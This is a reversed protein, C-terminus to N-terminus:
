SFFSSFKNKCQKLHSARLTHINTGAAIAQLFASHIQFEFYLILLLAYAVHAANKLYSLWGNLVHIFQGMRKRLIGFLERIFISYKIRFLHREESSFFNIKSSLVFINESLFLKKNQCFTHPSNSISYERIMGINADIKHRWRWCVRDRILRRYIGKRWMRESHLEISHNRDQNRETHIRNFVEFSKEESAKSKLKAIRLTLTNPLVFFKVFHENLKSEFWYFSNCKM